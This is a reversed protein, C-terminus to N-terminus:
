GHNIFNIYQFYKVNLVLVEGDCFESTRKAWQGNKYMGVIYDPRGKEDQLALLVYLGELPKDNIANHWKSHCEQRDNLKYHQGSIADIIFIGHDPIENPLCKKLHYINDEANIIFKEIKM